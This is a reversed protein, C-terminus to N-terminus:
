ARDPTVLQSAGGGAEHSAASQHSRTGMAQRLGRHASAAGGALADYCETRESTPSKSKRSYLEALWAPNGERCTWLSLDQVLVRRVPRRPHAQLQVEGHEEEQEQEEEVIVIAGTDRVEEHEQEAAAAAV